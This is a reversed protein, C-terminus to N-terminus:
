VPPPRPAGLWLLRQLVAPVPARPPDVALGRRRLAALGLSVALSLAAIATASGLRRVAHRVFAPDAVRAHLRRWWPVPRVRLPGRCVPCCGPAPARSGAWAAICRAHNAHAACGLCFNLLPDRPGGDGEHCVSCVDDSAEHM